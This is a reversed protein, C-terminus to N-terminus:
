HPQSFRAGEAARGGGRSGLNGPNQTGGMGGGGPAREGPGMGRGEVVEGM